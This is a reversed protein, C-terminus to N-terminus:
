AKRRIFAHQAIAAALTCGCAWGRQTGRQTGQRDVMPMRKGVGARNGGLGIVEVAGVVRKRVLHPFEDLGAGEGDNQAAPVLGGEARVAAKVASHAGGLDDVQVGM